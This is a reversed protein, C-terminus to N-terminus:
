FTRLAPDVDITRLAKLDVDMAALQERGASRGSHLIEVACAVDVVVCGSERLSRVADCITNGTDVEDDVILVSMGPTAGYFYFVDGVCHPESWTSEDPLGLRSKYAIIAPLDMEYAVGVAMPIGGPALGIVYDPRVDSRVAAALAKSAQRLEHPVIAFEKSDGAVNMVVKYNRTIGPNLRPCVTMRVSHEDNV